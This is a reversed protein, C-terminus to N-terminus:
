NYMPNIGLLQKANHLIQKEDEILFKEIKLDNDKNYNVNDNYWYSKKEDLKCLFKWGIETLLSCRIETHNGANINISVLFSNGRIRHYSVMKLQYKEKTITRDILM